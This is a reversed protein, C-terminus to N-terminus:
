IYERKFSNSAIIQQFHPSPSKSRPPMPAHARPLLLLNVIWWEGNVMWWGGDVMWWGGDVM